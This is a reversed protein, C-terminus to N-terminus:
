QPQLLCAKGQTRGQMQGYAASSQVTKGLTTQLTGTKKNNTSCSCVLLCSHCHKMANTPYLPQVVVVLRHGSQPISCSDNGGLLSETAFLVVQEFLTQHLPKLVRLFQRPLHHLVVLLILPVRVNLPSLRWECPEGFPVRPRVTMSPCWRRM